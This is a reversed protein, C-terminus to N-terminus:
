FLAYIPEQTLRKQAIDYYKTDIEFGIYNREARKAAILTSGGGAFPELVVDGKNSSQEIMIRMLPVPKETPHCKNGIINKVSLCNIMGMDNVNRAAGKRLMLIFELCQLYYRNPTANQKKWVLLNQYAFGADEAAQQLDKLNRGNIMIYCHTGEKLVRYCEPLWEEFKIENHEFMKGTRVNEAADNLVGSLSIHKTERQRNMIGGPQRHGKKTRYTGASCGGSVLLYPCDTVILDISEDPIMKFGERCDINYLKNLDMKENSFINKM